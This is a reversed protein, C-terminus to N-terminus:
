STLHQQGYAKDLRLFHNIRMKLHERNIPKLFFDTSGFLFAQKILRDDKKGSMLIVPLNRYRYDARLLRLLDLGNHEDLYIDMIVLDPKFTSLELMIKRSETTYHVELDSNFEMQGLLQCLLPDDDVVLVKASKTSQSLLIDALAKAIQEKKTNAGFYLDVGLRVESIRADLDDDQTILAMIFSDRHRAELLASMLEQEQEVLHSEVLLLRYNKEKLQEIAQQISTTSHSTIGHYKLGKELDEIFKQQSHILFIEEKGEKKESPQRPRELVLQSAIKIERLFTYCKEQSHTSLASFDALFADFELCLDAVRQYGAYSAFSALHQLKGKLRDLPAVMKAIMAHHLLEDLQLVHEILAEEIKESEKDLRKKKFQNAKIYDFLLALNDKNLPKNIVFDVKLDRRLVLYEDLEFYAASIFISLLRDLGNEIMWSLLENGKADNLYRDVIVGKYAILSLRKKAEECSFVQDILIHHSQAYRKLLLGFDLSDDVLLFREEEAPVFNTSKNMM